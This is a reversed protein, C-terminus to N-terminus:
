ELQESPPRQESLRLSSEDLWLTKETAGGVNDGSESITVPVRRGVGVRAMAAIFSTDQFLQPASERDPVVIILGRVDGAMLSNVVVNFNHEEMEQDWRYKATIKYVIVANALVVTCIFVALVLKRAWIFGSWKRWCYDLGYAALVVFGASSTYMYRSATREPFLSLLTVDWDFLSVPLIFILCWLSFLRTLRNGYRWTVWGIVPVAAAAVVRCTLLIWHMGDPLMDAVRSSLPFILYGLLYWISVLVSPGLVLEKDIVERGVFYVTLYAIALLVVTLSFWIVPPRLLNRKDLVLMVVVVALSALGSEKTLTAVAWLVTVAVLWWPNSDETYKTVTLAMLLTFSTVLLDPTASIWTVVPANLYYIGFLLAAAAAVTKDGGLRGILLYLLAANAGHLVVSVCSYLWANTVALPYWLSLLGTAVPRFYGYIPRDFLSLPEEMVRSAAALWLWDDGMFFRAAFPFYFLCGVVGAVLSTAITYKGDAKM